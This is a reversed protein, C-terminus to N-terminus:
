AYSRHWAASVTEEGHPQLLIGAVHCQFQHLQSPSPHTQVQASCHMFTLTHLRPVGTQDKTCSVKRFTYTKSLPFDQTSDTQSLVIFDQSKQIQWYKLTRLIDVKRGQNGQIICLQSILSTRTWLGIGKCRREVYHRGCFGM